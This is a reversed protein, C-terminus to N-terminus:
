LYAARHTGWGLDAPGLRRGSLESVVLRVWRNRDGPAWPELELHDTEYHTAEYAMGRALVSWGSRHHPDVWDVEFSVPGLRLLGLKTGAGTRFVIARGDLVYNVPEVLPAEGPAALAIRGVPQTALLEYCEAEELWSLEGKAPQEEAQDDKQRRAPM